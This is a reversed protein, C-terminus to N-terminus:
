FNRFFLLLFIPISLTSFIHTLLIGKSIYESDEGYVRAIVLLSTASPMAAEILIILSLLYPFKLLFLLCMVVLPILILKLFIVVSIDYKLGRGIKCIALAGGVVFLGLPITSDGLMKLPKTIIPPIFRNIGTLVIFLSIVVAIFPPSFFKSWEIREDRHKKSLLIIGWSWILFNFGMLFFLIYLIAKDQQDPRLLSSVLALPLYGSNQFSVLSKFELKNSQIHFLKAIIQALIFSFLIMAISALPLVWWLPLECFNFETAIRSFIMFPLTVYIILESLHQVLASNIIGKRVTFFGVAMLIFIEGIALFSAGFTSFITNNMDFPTLFEDM